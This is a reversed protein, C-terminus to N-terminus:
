ASAPMSGIECGNECWYAYAEMLKTTGMHFAAHFSVKHSDSEPGDDHCQVYIVKIFDDKGDFTDKQWGGQGVVEVGEGFNYSALADEALTQQIEHTTSM